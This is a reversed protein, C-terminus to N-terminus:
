RGKATMTKLLRMLDSDTSLVLTTEGDIVTRYTELTKLFKYLEVADPSRNYSRAYIDTAKADADGEIKQITRYAVSDITQLEREKNGIIRAAEGAGESRFRDAIQDRESIM